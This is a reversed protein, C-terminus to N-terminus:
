ITLRYAREYGSKNILGKKVTPSATIVALGIKGKESKANEPIRYTYAQISLVIHM